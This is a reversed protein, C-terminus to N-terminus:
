RHRGIEGKDKEIDQRIDVTISSVTVNDIDKDDKEMIIDVTWDGNDYSITGASCEYIINNPHLVFAVLM